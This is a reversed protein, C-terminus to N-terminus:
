VDERHVLAYCEELEPIPDKRLIEGRVQEFDGELGTLFIHVRQRQLLKQYSAIDTEDVIVVKDRHDLESFIETLEGYYISLPRGNQKAFFARQNLTFVQLEDM